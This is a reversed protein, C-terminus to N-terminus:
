IIYLPRSLKQAHYILVDEMSKLLGKRNNSRNKTKTDKTLREEEFPSLSDLRIPCRSSIIRLLVVEVRSTLIRKSKYEECRRNMRSSGLLITMSKGFM